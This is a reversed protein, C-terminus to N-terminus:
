PRKNIVGSNCIESGENCSVDDKFNWGMPILPFVGVSKVPKPASGLDTDAKTKLVFQGTYNEAIFPKVQQM